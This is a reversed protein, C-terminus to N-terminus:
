LTGGEASWRILKRLFDECADLQAIELYEDPQHAQRISGPGCIVTPIGARQFMGAETAFSVQETSNLGTLLRVLAEAPSGAEAALGPVEALCITEIESQPATERMEALVEDRAFAEFEARIAAIEDGPLPRVQWTFDCRRPVINHATGGEIIGVNVTTYPPDYSEEGREDQGPHRGAAAAERRARGLADLWGILRTAGFIASAARHPESSHAELGTVTTRYVAIGKHGTILRMESPEGVIVAAPRADAELIDAILADAGFCGIEEDYSIALHLPRRLGAKGAEPVLALAAALFGKMDTSGRGYLRTGRRELTFPDSSWDQGEVPVVDSHGSLVVGGPGPPGLTAFLNAKGAQASSRRCAVGHSALYAEVFDILPLNSRESVTDFAVLRQLLEAATFYQPQSV